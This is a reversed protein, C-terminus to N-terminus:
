FMSLFNVGPHNYFDKDEAAIFAHILLNSMAKVPVFIRKETAYEGLLRGDGAYVRSVIPPQYNALQKYDPLDRGFYWVTIGALGAVAIVALIILSFLLRVIHM